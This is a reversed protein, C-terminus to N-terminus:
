WSGIEEAFVIEKGSAMAGILEFSFGVWPPAPQHDKQKTLQISDTLLEGLPDFWGETEPPIVMYNKSNMKFPAYYTGALSERQFRKIARLLEKGDVPTYLPTQVKSM